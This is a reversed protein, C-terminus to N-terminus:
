PEYSTEHVEAYKHFLFSKPFPGHLYVQKYILKAFFHKRLNEEIKFRCLVSMDVHLTERNFRQEEPM